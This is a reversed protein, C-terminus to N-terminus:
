RPVIRLLSYLADFYASISTRESVPIPASCAVPWQRRSGAVRRRGGATGGVVAPPRRVRMRGAAPVTGGPVAGGPVAGGPVAGGPVAGGPRGARPSM